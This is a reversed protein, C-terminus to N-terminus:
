ENDVPILRCFKCLEKSAKFSPRYHAPVAITTGKIINRATKAKRLTNHFTGFGRLYVPKNAQLAASIENMFEDVVTKVVDNTVGTTKAVNQCLEQKIM